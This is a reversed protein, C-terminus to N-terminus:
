GNLFAERASKKAKLIYFANRLGIFAKWYEERTRTDKPGGYEKWHAKLTKKDLRLVKIRNIYCVEDVRAFRNTENEWAEAYAALQMGWEPYFSAGTKFDILWIEKNICSVDRGRWKESYPVDVELLADFRGAYWESENVVKQETALVTYPGISELKKIASDILALAMKACDAVVPNQHTVELALASSLWNTGHLYEELADHVMTGIHGAEDRVTRWNTKSEQWVNDGVIFPGSRRLMDPDNNRIDVLRDVCDKAYDVACNVAWPILADSKDMTDTVTTVSALEKDGVPYYRNGM